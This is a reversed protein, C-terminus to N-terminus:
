TPSETPLRPFRLEREHRTPLVAALGLVDRLERASRELQARSPWAIPQRGEEVTVRSGTAALLRAFTEVTPRKRGSEYSSVTAQSTGARRALEVQTMGARERAARIEISPSMPRTYGSLYVAYISNSQTM